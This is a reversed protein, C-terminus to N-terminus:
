PFRQIFYTAGSRRHTVMKVKCRRCLCRTRGKVLNEKAFKIFKVAGDLYNPHDNALEIWSSDMEVFM